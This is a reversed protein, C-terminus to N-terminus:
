KGLKPIAVTLNGKHDKSVQRAVNIMKLAYGHASTLTHGSLDMQAMTEFSPESVIRVNGNEKDEIVIVIRAM